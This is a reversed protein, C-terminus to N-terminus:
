WGRLSGRALGRSTRDGPFLYDHLVTRRSRAPPPDRKAGVAALPHPRLVREGCVPPSTSRSCTRSATPRRRTCGCSTTGPPPVSRGTHAKTRTRKPPGSRRRASTLLIISISRASDTFLHVPSYEFWMTRSAREECLYGLAFRPERGLRVRWRM